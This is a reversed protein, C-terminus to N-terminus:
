RAARLLSSPERPKVTILILILGIVEGRVECPLPQGALSATSVYVQREKYTHRTTLAKPAFLLCVPCHKCRRRTLYRRGDRTPPALPRSLHAPIHLSVRVIHRHVTAHTHLRVHWRRAPSRARVRVPRRSTTPQAPVSVLRHSPTGVARQEVEADRSLILGKTWCPVRLVTSLSRQGGQHSSERAAISSLLKMSGTKRPQCCVNRPRTWVM